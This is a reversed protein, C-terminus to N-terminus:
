DGTLVKELASAMQELTEPKLIVEHVGSTRAFDGWNPDRSGSSIVVKARPRISLIQHAFELGSMGHMSMDTLVLDFAASSARFAALAEEANSFAATSHGLTTLWRTTLVIHLPDDDLCLIRAVALGVADRVGADFRRGM